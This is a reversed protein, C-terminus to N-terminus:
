DSNQVTLAVLSLMTDRTQNVWDAEDYFDKKADAFNPDTCDILEQQCSSGLHNFFDPVVGNCKRWAEQIETYTPYNIVYQGGSNCDPNYYMWTIFHNDGDKDASRMYSPAVWFVDLRSRDLTDEESTSNLLEKITISGLVAQIASDWTDNESFNCDYSDEFKLVIEELIGMPIPSLALDYSEFIDNLHAKADNLCFIHFQEYFALELEEPTLEIKSGNREIIM